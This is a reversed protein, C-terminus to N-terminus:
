KKNYISFMEIWNGFTPICPASGKLAQTLTESLGAVSVSGM